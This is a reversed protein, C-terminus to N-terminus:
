SIEIKRREGAKPQPKKGTQEIEDADKYILQAKGEDDMTNKVCDGLSRLKLVAVDVEDDKLIRDWERFVLGEALPRNGSAYFGSITGIEDNISAQAQEVRRQEESKREEGVTPLTFSASSNFFATGFLKIIKGRVANDKPQTKLLGNYAFSNDSDIEASNIFAEQAKQYFGESKQVETTREGKTMYALGLINLALAKSLDTQKSTEEGALVKIAEDVDGNKLLMEGRFAAAYPSDPVSKEEPDLLKKFDEYVKSTVVVEKDVKGTLAAIFKHRVRQDALTVLPLAYLLGEFFRGVRQWGNYKKTYSLEKFQVANEGEGITFQGKERIKGIKGMRESAYIACLQDLDGPCKDYNGYNAM